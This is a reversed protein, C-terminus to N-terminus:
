YFGVINRYQSSFGADILYVEQGAYQEAYRKAKIQELPKGEGSFPNTLGPM